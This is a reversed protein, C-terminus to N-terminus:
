VPFSVNNQFIKINDLAKVSLSEGAETLLENFLVSKSHISPTLLIVLVSTILVTKSM